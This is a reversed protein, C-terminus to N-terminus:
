HFIDLYAYRTRNLSPYAGDRVLKQEQGTAMSFAVKRGTVLELVLENARNVTVTHVWALHFATRQLQSQSEYLDDLRLTRVLRGQAYFHLVELSLASDTPVLNMGQYGVVVSKGDESVFLWRHWGKFSWLERGSSKSIVKTVSAQPDSDACISGSPSCVLHRGPPPLPTDAQASSVALLALLLLRNLMTGLM